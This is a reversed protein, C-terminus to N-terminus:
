MPPAAAGRLDRALDEYQPQMGTAQIAEALAKAADDRRGQDELALVLNRRAQALVGWMSYHNASQVGLTKSSVKGAPTYAYNYEFSLQNPGINSGFTAQVLQGPMSVCGTADTTPCTDYTFTQQRDPIATLRQYADYTYTETNGNADKKSALTGGANYTYSVTGNEPNTTSTLWLAPLNATSYTTPTYTFTRKQTVTGRPMAVQTLHSVQDYTYSTLLMGSPAATVPYAPPPNPPGPVPNNQNPPSPPAPELVTVLNGFIDSAYQKWNSAPDTVTTSNGQYTYTTASAGDALLVKVARGLADYSYTTGSPASNPPAYPQSQWSMKGIPGCACPAYTTDVESLVTTGTGTGTQVSVTRGIGDLTTTTFHSTGNNGPASNATTATVTWAGSTYGYTYNTQAGLQGTAQSPALTYAVRGYIDYSTYAATGTKTSPQYLM